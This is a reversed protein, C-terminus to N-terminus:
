PLKGLMEELLAQDVGETACASVSTSSTCTTARLFWAIDDHTYAYIAEAAEVGPVDLLLVDKGALVTPHQGVTMDPSGQITLLLPIGFGAADAGRVQLALINGDRGAANFLDAFGIALDDPTKAQEALLARVADLRTPELQAIAEPGQVVQATVPAGKLEGPFLSMLGLDAGASAAPSASQAVALSAPALSVGIVVAALVWRLSRVAGEWARFMTVQGVFGLGGARDLWQLDVTLPGRHSSTAPGILVSTRTPPWLEIYQGDLAGFWAARPRTGQCWRGAPRTGGRSAHRTRPRTRTM